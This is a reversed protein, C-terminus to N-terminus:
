FGGLPGKKWSGMKMLLGLGASAAQIHVPMPSDVPLRSFLYYNSHDKRGASGTCTVAAAVYTCHGRGPMECFKEDKGEPQEKASNRLM